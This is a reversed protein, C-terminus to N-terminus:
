GVRHHPDDALPDHVHDARCPGGDGIGIQRLLDLFAADVVDAFADAAIDADGAVIRLRRDAAGLVGGHALFPAFAPMGLADAFVVRFARHQDDTRTRSAEFGSAREALTAILHRDGVTCALGSAAHRAFAAQGAKGGPAPWIPM